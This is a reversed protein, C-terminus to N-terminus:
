AAQKQEGDFFEAWFEEGREEANPKAKNNGNADQPGLASTLEKFYDLTMTIIEQPTADPHTKQFQEATQALQKRVVPHNSNPISSLGTATLEKRVKSGLQKSGYGERATVFKDTLTSGHELSKAYSNQAVKQMLQMLSQIDGSTAKQMLEPDIGQMFDQSGAVDGLIKPDLSFAPAQEQQGEPTDWMKTFRDIGVPQQQNGTNQNNGNNQNNNNNGNNPLSGPNLQGQNLQGNNPNAQQQNGNGGNPNAAGQNEPQKPASPKFFDMISTAM